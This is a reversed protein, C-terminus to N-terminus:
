EKANKDSGEVNAKEVVHEATLIFHQKGWLGALGTGPAGWETAPLGLVPDKGETVLARNLVGIAHTWMREVAADSAHDDRAEEHPKM